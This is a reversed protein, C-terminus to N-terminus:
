EDVSFTPTAAIPKPTPQRPMVQPFGARVAADIDELTVVRYRTLDYSTMPEGEHNYSGYHAAALRWALWSSTACNTAATAFSAAM